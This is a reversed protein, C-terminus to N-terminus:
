AFEVPGVVELELDQRRHEILEKGAALRGERPRGLVGPGGSVPPGRGADAYSASRILWDALVNALLRSHRARAGRLDVRRGRAGRRLVQQTRSGRDAGPLARGSRDSPARTPGSHKGQHEHDTHVSVDARTPEGTRRRSTAPARDPARDGSLSLVTPSATSRRQWRQRTTSARASGKFFVPRSPPPRLTEQRRVAFVATRSAMCHRSALSMEIRVTAARRSRDCGRHRM